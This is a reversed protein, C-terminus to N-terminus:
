RWTVEVQGATDVASGSRASGNEARGMGVMAHLEAIMKHVSLPKGFSRSNAPKGTDSPTVQGSLLMIKIGPWRDHVALKLGDMSGPM